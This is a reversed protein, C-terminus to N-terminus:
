RQGHDGELKFAQTSSLAIAQFGALFSGIGYFVLSDRLVVFVLLPLNGASDLKVLWYGVVEGVLFISLIETTISEPHPLTRLGAALMDLLTPEDIWAPLPAMKYHVVSYVLTVVTAALVTVAQTTIAPTFARRAHRSAVGNISVSLFCSLIALLGIAAWGLLGCTLTFFAIVPLVIITAVVSMLLAGIRGAFVPFLPSEPLLVAQALAIRRAANSKYLVAISLLGSM